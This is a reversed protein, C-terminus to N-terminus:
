GISREDIEVYGSEERGLLTVISLKALGKFSVSTCFAAGMISENGFIRAASVRLATAEATTLALFLPRAIMPPIAPCTMLVPNAGIRMSRIFRPYTVATAVLPDPTM